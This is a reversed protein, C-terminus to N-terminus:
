FRRSALAKRMLLASDQPSNFGANMDADPRLPSGGGFQGGAGGKRNDQYEVPNISLVGPRTRAPPKPLNLSDEEEEEEDSDSDSDDSAGYSNINRNNLQSFQNMIDTAKRSYYDDMGGAYQDADDDNSDESEESYDEDEDEEDEDEEDEEETDESESEEDEDDSSGASPPEQYEADDSPLLNLCNKPGVPTGDYNLRRHIFVTAPGWSMKERKKELLEFQQMYTLGKTFTVLVAGPQLGEAMKSLQAMLDDDFCTSNAFVVDGDTWDFDLFSGMYVAAHQRQSADLLQRYSTNYRETIKFAQNHLGQLIEIGICRNYDQTLRAAFVAKGTGSGLDYFTKGALPQVKRLIAYFSKYEVEGYILSKEENLQREERESKSLSKGVELSTDAFLDNYVAASEANLLAHLEELFDVDAEAKSEFKAMIASLKMDRRLVMEKLFSKANNTITGQKALLTALLLLKAPESLGSDESMNALESPTYSFFSSSSSTSIIASNIRFFAKLFSKNRDM